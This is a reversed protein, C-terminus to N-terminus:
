ELSVRYRLMDYIASASSTSLDWPVLNTAYSYLGGQNIRQIALGSVPQSPYVRHRKLWNLVLAPSFRADWRSNSRIALHGHIDNDWSSFHSFTWRLSSLGHYSNLNPDLLETLQEFAGQENQLSRKDWYFIGSAFTIMHLHSDRCLVVRRFIDIIRELRGSTALDGCHVTLHDLGQNCAIGDLMKPSLQADSGFRPTPVSMSRFAPNVTFSEGICEYELLQDPINLHLPYQFQRFYDNMEQDKDDINDFRLDVRPHVPHAALAPLVELWLGALWIRFDTNISQATTPVLSLVAEAPPAVLFTLAIAEILHRAPEV